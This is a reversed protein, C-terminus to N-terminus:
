CKVSSNALHVVAHFVLFVELPPVQAMQAETRSPWETCETDIDDLAEKPVLEAVIPFRTQSINALLSAEPLDANYYMPLAVLLKEEQHWGQGDWCPVIFTTTTKSARKLAALTLEVAIHFIENKLDAWSCSFITTM